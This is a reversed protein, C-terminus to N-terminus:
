KALGAVDITKISFNPRIQESINRDLATLSKLLKAANVWKNRVRFGLQLKWSIVRLCTEQKNLTTQYGM